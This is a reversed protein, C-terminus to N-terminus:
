LQSYIGILNEALVDASFEHRIKESFRKRNYEGYHSMMHRLAAAVDNESKPDTLIGNESNVFDKPGGNVTAIVPLGQALAELYAVGFTEQKSVLVFADYQSYADLLVRRPVQGAFHIKDRLHLEETLKELKLKEPGDGYITLECQNNSIQGFAKLLIEYNKESVLNGASVFQFVSNKGDIVMDPIDLEIMNHVVYPTIGTWKQIREKMDISVAIVANAQAYIGKAYQSIDCVCDYDSTHDTLVFSVCERRCVASCMYGYDLFHAHVVDPVGFESKIKNYLKRFAYAGVCNFVRKQVPGLPIAASFVPIGEIETKTLGLKRKKRISRLDIVAYCVDVKKQKLARAQDWEFIGNLPEEQTPMGRSVILIKKNRM